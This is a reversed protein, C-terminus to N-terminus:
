AIGCPGGNACLLEDALAGIQAEIGKVAALVFAIEKIKERSLERVGLASAPDKELQRRFAPDTLARYILERNKRRRGTSRGKGSLKKM